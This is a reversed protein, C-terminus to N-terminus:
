AFATDVNLVTNKKSLRITNNAPQRAASAEEVQRSYAALATTLYPQLSEGFLDMLLQIGELSSADPLLSAAAAASVASSSAAASAASSSSAAATASAARLGSPTPLTITEPNRRRKKGAAVGDEQKVAPEDEMASASAAATAAPPTYKIGQTAAKVAAAMEYPDTAVSLELRIYEGVCQQLFFRARLLASRLVLHAFSAISVVRACGRSRYRQAGTKRVLMAHFVYSAEMRTIENAADMAPTLVDFYAAVYPIVVSKVTSHGLKGLAVLCGYHTALSKSPDLWAKLLTRTIRPQLQPYTSGHQACLLKLLDAAYDRVAWHDETPEACLQKGVICTLISPVLQQLYPEVQLYKSQMLCGAMRMLAHLLNRNHLNRSLEEAIFQTFYPLLQYLGDDELLSKFVASKLTSDSGRLASTVYEYYLQQEKSLVHRIAPKTLVEKEGKGVVVKLSSSADSASSAASAASSASAAATAAAIDNPGPNQAIQPQVGDVVLWHISFTTDAPVKPLPKQLVEEFQVLTDSVVFVDDAASTFSLASAAGTSVEGASPLLQTSNDYSCPSLALSLSCRFTLM